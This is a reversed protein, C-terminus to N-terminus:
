SKKLCTLLKALRWYCTDTPISTTSNLDTNTKVMNADLEEFNLLEAIITKSINALSPHLFNFHTWSCCNIFHYVSPWALNILTFHREVPFSPSFLSHVGIKIWNWYLKVVGGFSPHDFKTPNWYFNTHVCRKAWTKRHLKFCKVLIFKPVRLLWYLFSKEPCITLLQSSSLCRIRQSNWKKAGHCHFSMWAFDFVSLFQVVHWLSFSYYFMIVWVIQCQKEACNEISKRTTYKM